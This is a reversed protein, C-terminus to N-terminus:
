YKNDFFIGKILGYLFGGLFLGFRRGKKPM